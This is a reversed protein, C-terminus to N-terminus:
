SCLHMCGGATPHRGAMRKRHGAVPVGRDQRQGHRYDGRRATGGPLAVRRHGRGPASLGDQEQLPEGDGAALKADLPLERWAAGSKFPRHAQYFPEQALFGRADLESELAARLKPDKARFETRLVMRKVRDQLTRTSWREARCMEAYFERKLPDDIALLERFHTWSLQTRLAYVIQEDPFFDAFRVMHFLNRRDFGRGYAATLEKSLTSVIEEGYAARQEGLIEERIRKGVHWYLTVLGANVAQAVQQRAADILSRVDSLLKDSSAQSRSRDPLSIRHCKSKRPKKM